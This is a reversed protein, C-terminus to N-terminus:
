FFEIAGLMKGSGEEFDGSARYRKQGAPNESVASNSQRCVLGETAVPVTIKFSCNGYFFLYIPGQLAPSRRILDWLDVNFFLLM